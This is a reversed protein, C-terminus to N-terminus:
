DLLEGDQWTTIKIENEEDKKNKFYKSEYASAFHGMIMNIM